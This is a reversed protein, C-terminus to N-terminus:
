PGCRSAARPPARREQGLSVGFLILVLAALASQAPQEGHLMVGTALAIVPILYNILSLFTPGSTTVIRFYIVTAVATSVVGLWLAAAASGPSTGGLPRDQLLSIPLMIASAIMMVSASSVFIHLRPLRRALIANTAYCLAGALVAAERALQGGGSTAPGFQALAEPGLLLVVGLFGVVFAGVRRRTAREGPVYFHALLLTALPMVAMLIGALSSEIREQGWSILFFPLANGVIALLTLHVWIRGARPLQLGASRVLALLLIAGITVRATVLWAPPITAVAIKTFLFSTGWVVALCVLLAWEGVSHRAPLASPTM